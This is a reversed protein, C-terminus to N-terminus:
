GCWEGFVTKMLDRTPRGSSTKTSAIYNYDGTDRVAFIHWPHAPDMVSQMLSIRSYLQQSSIDSRRLLRPSIRLASAVWCFVPPTFDRMVWPSPGRPPEAGGFTASQQYGSQDWGAGGKEYTAELFRPSLVVTPLEQITAQAVLTQLSAVADISPGPPQFEDNYDTPQVLLLIGRHPDVKGRGIQTIRRKGPQKALRMHSPIESGQGLCLITVNEYKGNAKKNNYEPIDARKLLQLEQSALLSQKITNFYVIVPRSQQTTNGREEFGQWHGRSLKAALVLAVRRIASGESLHPLLHHAGDIEVGIRGIDTPSRVPRYAFISRSIANSAVNPDLRQKNYLTGAIAEFVDDALADITNPFQPQPAAISEVGWDNPDV